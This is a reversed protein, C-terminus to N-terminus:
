QAASPWAGFCLPVGDMFAAVDPYARGSRNYQSPPALGPAGAARAFYGAVTAAQYPPAPFETSFGGGTCGQM